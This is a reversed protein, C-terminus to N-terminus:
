RKDLWVELGQTNLELDFALVALMSAKGLQPNHKQLRQMTHDALAQKINAHRDESAALRNAIDRYTQLDGRLDNALKEVQNVMGYHTLFMRQPKAALLRDLTLNWADPDFQVPTTTAILFPQGDLDLERYSLGFTDGTFWGQSSSDWVCYHHKAHGPSDIFRFRRGQWDLTFEDEAILVRAEPVPVIEGYMRELEDAGYVTTAGAILQSPDIMHRAGRPHMVLQAHPLERMLAGAGGAHDLHVHTPMVFDVNERPVGLKHLAALIRPVTHATGTEIVVARDGEQVVYCGAMGARELATDILTIGFDLAQDPLPHILNDPHTM